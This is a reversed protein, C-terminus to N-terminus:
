GRISGIMQLYKRGNLLKKTQKNQKTSLKRQQVFGKLNLTIISNINLCQYTLALDAM